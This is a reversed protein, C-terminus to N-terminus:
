KQKKINLNCFQSELSFNKNYYPDGKEYFERWKNLFCDIDQQFRLQKEESMDEYGRTKSEDHIIEVFPDYVILKGTKRIKLCFDIDNFAVPFSEDMFGVEEYISKKSMMCAGTVASFNQITGDRGFYISVNAPLNKFIHGAVKHMGIVVGAHQISKDPYYAKVGVAGVDDRQAFGIMEELWDPTIITIDNNLQLIFDGSSNKVGYNIIKSYNFGKEKYYLIKIKKNEKLSEYFDFTEKQTSNNEVLVIEYNKYTTKNLISNLCKKLYSIGDKTPIIISVKPTGIIDYKTRYTGLSNGHSVTASIGQRKLHDEIVLIGAEYAYSKVPNTSQATSNPHARWHYLVKSIHVINKTKESARLVLDFDQAGDYKSREGELEKMLSNKFISFHCIYNNSRLFDPSFDPKFHVGFRHKGCLDIKDEDSYILEANPNENICKVVEFLSFPPLTDDHDLLGIFDGTAMKIAENTNGSIGKNEGIFHYKIRKDQKVIKKFENNEQQSGDALCLEWNKYTQNVVSFILEKFFQIDTNYMPVVISIKLADKFTTNEQIKLEEETPTNQKIWKRYEEQFNQALSPNLYKKITSIIKKCTVHFGNLQLYQITKKFNPITFIRFFNRFM